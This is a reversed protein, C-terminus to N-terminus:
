STRDKRRRWMVGLDKAPWLTATLTNEMNEYTNETYVEYHRLIYSALLKMQIMALKIGICNRSGHSFPLYSYASKNRVNEPLFRDPDFKEPEPYIEPDRQILRTTLFVLTKEKLELDVELM